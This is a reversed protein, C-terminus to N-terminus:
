GNQGARLPVKDFRKRAHAAQQYGESGVLYIEFRMERARPDLSM